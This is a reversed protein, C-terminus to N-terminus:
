EAPGLGMAALHPRLQFGEPVTLDKVRNFAEFNAEAEDKEASQDMSLMHEFDADARVAAPTWNGFGGQTEQSATMGSVAAVLFIIGELSCGTPNARSPAEYLPSSEDIVHHIFSAPPTAPCRDLHSKLPYQFFLVEGGPMVFRKVIGLRVQPNVMIEGSDNKVACCAHRRTLRAANERGRLTRSGRAAASRFTLMAHGGLVEPLKRLVLKDAFKIVRSKAAFKSLVIDIFFLTVLSGNIMVAIATITTGPTYTVDEEEVSLCLLGFGRYAFILWVMLPDEPRGEEPTM